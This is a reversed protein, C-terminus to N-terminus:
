SAAPPRGVRALGIAAEGSKVPFQCDILQHGDLGLVDALAAHELL